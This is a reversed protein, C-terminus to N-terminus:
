AMSCAALGPPGQVILMIIAHVKELPKLVSSVRQAQVHKHQPGVLNFASTEM